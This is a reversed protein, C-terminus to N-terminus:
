FRARMFAGGGEGEEGVDKVIMATIAVRGTRWGGDEGGDGECDAREVGDGLEHFGM